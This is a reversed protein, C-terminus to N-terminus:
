KEDLSFTVEDGDEVIFKKDELLKLFEYDENSIEFITSNNTVILNISKNM